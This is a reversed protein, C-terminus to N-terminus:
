LEIGEIDFINGVGSENLYFAVKPRCKLRRDVLIDFGEARLYNYGEREGAGDTSLELHLGTINSGGCSCSKELSIVVSRYGGAKLYNVTKRSMKVEMM